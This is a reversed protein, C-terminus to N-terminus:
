DLSCVRCVMRGKFSRDDEFKSPEAGLLVLDQAYINFPLYLPSGIMGPIDVDLSNFITSASELRLDVGFASTVAPAAASVITRLRHRTLQIVFYLDERGVEQTGVIRACTM